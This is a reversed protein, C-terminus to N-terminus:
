KVVLVKRVYREKGIKVVIYYVGQVVPRGRKSTGDWVVENMGANTSRNYLVKVTDGALDYV